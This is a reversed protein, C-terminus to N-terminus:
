RVLRRKATTMTSFSADFLSLTGTAASYRPDPFSAPSHTISGRCPLQWAILAAKSVASCINGAAVLKSIISSSSIADSSQSSCITLVALAVPASM